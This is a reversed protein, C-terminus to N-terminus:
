TTTSSRSTRGLVSRATTTLDLSGDEILSVVTLATLGKAAAPSPSGRTSRTPSATPQPGGAGFAKALEIAAPAISGCSAPSGPGNPSRTSRKRWRGCAPVRRSGDIVSTATTHDPTASAHATQAPSSPEPFPRKVTVSGFTSICSKTNGSDGRHCSPRNHNASQSACSTIATSRSPLLSTTTRSGDSGNLMSKRGSPRRSRTAPRRMRRMSGSPESPVYASRM